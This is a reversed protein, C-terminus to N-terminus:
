DWLWPLAPFAGTPKGVQLVDVWLGTGTARGAEMGRGQLDSALAGAEGWHGPLPEERRDIEHRGGGLM